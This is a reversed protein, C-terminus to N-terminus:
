RQQVGRNTPQRGEAREGSAALRKLGRILNPSRQPSDLLNQFAGVDYRTMAAKFSRVAAEPTTQDLQFSPTPNSVGSDFVVKSGCGALAVIIMLWFLVHSVRLSIPPDPSGVFVASECLKNM